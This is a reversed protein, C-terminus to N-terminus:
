SMIGNAVLAARMAVVLAHLASMNAGSDLGNTGAGYAALAGGSAYATQATAGNCGFAGAVTIAGDSGVTLRPVLTANGDSCTRLILKGPADNGTTGWGTDAYGVIDAACKPADTYGYFSVIGLVDDASNNSPSGISGRYHALYLEGHRTATASYTTLYVVPNNTNRNINLSVTDLYANDGAYLAESCQIRGATTPTSAGVGLANTVHLDNNFDFRDEDEMYTLTGEHTEGNWTTVYDHGAAGNGIVINGDGYIGFLQDSANLMRLAYESSDINTIDLGSAVGAILRIYDTSACNTSRIGYIKLGPETVSNSAGIIRLGGYQPHADDCPGLSSYATTPLLNTM